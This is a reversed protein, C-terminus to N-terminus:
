QGRGDGSQKGRMWKRFGDANRDAVDKPTNANTTEKPKDAEKQRWELLASLIAKLWGWSM